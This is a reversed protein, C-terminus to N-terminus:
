RGKRDYITSATEMKALQNLDFEAAKKVYISQWYLFFVIGAIAVVALLSAVFIFWPRAYFPPRPKYEWM